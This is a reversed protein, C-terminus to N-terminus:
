RSSHPGKNPAVLPGYLLRVGFVVGDCEAAGAVGTGADGNDTGGVVRSGVVDNGLAIVGENAIGPVAM